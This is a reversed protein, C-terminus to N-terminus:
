IFFDALTFIFLTLTVLLHYRTRKLLRPQYEEDVMKYIKRAIAWEYVVTCLMGTLAAFSLLVIHFLNSSSGLVFWFLNILILNDIKNRM